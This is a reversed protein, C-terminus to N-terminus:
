PAAPEPACSAQMEEQFGTRMSTVEEDQLEFVIVLNRKDDRGEITATARGAEGNDFQVSQQAATYTRQIDQRTSGIRIGDTTAIPGSSVDIRAIRGDRAIFRVGEPKGDAPVLVRCAQQEASGADVQPDGGETTSTAGGPQQSGDDGASGDADVLLQGARSGAEIVPMGLRIPGLRGLDLPAREDLRSQPPTTTSANRNEGDDNATFSENDGDGANCAAALAATAVLVAVLRRSRSPM